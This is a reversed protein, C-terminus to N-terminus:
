IIYMIYIYIYIYMIYVCIYVYIDGGGEREVCMCIYVIEFCLVCACVHVCVCVCLRGYVPVCACLCVPVCMFLSRVVIVNTLFLVGNNRCSKSSHYYARLWPHTRTCVIYVHTRTCDHHCPSFFVYWQKQVAKFLSLHGINDPLEYGRASVAGPYKQTLEHFTYM